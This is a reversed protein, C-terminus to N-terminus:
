ARVDLDPLLSGRGGRPIHVNLDEDDGGPFARQITASRMADDGLSTTCTSAASRTHSSASAKIVAPPPPAPAFSSCLQPASSHHPAPASSALRPAPSSRHQLPATSVSLPAAARLQPATSQRLQRPDRAPIIFVEVHTNWTVRRPQNQQPPRDDPGSPLVSHCLLLSSLGSVTSPSISASSFPSPPIQLFWSAAEMSSTRWPCDCPPRRTPETETGRITSTRPRSLEGTWLKRSELRGGFYDVNEKFSATQLRTDLYPDSLDDRHAIRPPVYM